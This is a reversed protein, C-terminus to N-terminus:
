QPPELGFYVVSITCGKAGTRWAHMAAPIVVCDGAQLVVEGEDLALTVEGQLVIDYDLTATHHFPTSLGADFSFVAWRTAAAPLEIDLWAWDKARRPGVVEPPQQTTSWVRNWQVGPLRPTMGGEVDRIEAVKSQGKEGLGVVVFKSM